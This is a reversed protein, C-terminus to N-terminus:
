IYILPVSRESTVIRHSHGQLILSARHCIFVFVIHM